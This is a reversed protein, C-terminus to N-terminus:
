QPCCFRHFNNQVAFAPHHRVTTRDELQQRSQPDVAAPHRHFQIANNNPFDLPRRYPNLVPRLHFYHMKHTATLPSYPQM